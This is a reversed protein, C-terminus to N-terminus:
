GLATVLEIAPTPPPNWKVDVEWVNLADFTAGYPGEDDQSGIIPAKSGRKPPRKGDADAPLLGDGILNIPVGGDQLLFSVARAAPDGAIMRDRELGYVGIGYISEDVIGFERTTILYTDDWVGYKPYYPYN